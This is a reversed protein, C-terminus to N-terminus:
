EPSAAWTAVQRLAPRLARMASTVSGYGALRATARWPLRELVRARLLTRERTSLRGLGAIRAALWPTLAWAAGEFPQPGALYAAVAAALEGEGPEPSTNSASSTNPPPLDALLAARLAPDLLLDREDCQLDLQTSLARSLNARLADVLVRARPSVPRVMVAAPEGSREGRSVGVRVLTYGVARRFTLLEDTAGFLTGFLDPAYTAHVGEVLRRALGLRRLGPHTAIRVSRVMTLEGAEPHGAHTVLTDALAHGRIRTRGQAMDECLAPSLGGEFAVLSAAVIRERWLLAHLALNPADLARHLDGPTTRYHAHVLLGFFERLRGEDNALADRDLVEHHLEAAGSPGPGPAGEPLTAPEADLMLLGHILRELPDDPAWRIPTSLTLSRLPRPQRRAWALFRLIFGRGTGEYGHATTAFALRASSHTVTLAQLVPVALQAAEDVVLADWRTEPAPELLAPLEVFAFGPGAFRLVEAAAEPRGATIAIRLPAEGRAARAVAAARLALGLAASKGRGRDAVLSVCAPTPDLFFRALEAVVAAQEATGARTHDAPRLPRDEAPAQPAPLWREVRRHFHEGVAAPGHPAVCLAVAPPPPADGPGLRVVLAGGGWVFGHGQGLLDADVGGHLDLVVADFSAGLRAAAEGRAGSVVGPPADAGIWLM